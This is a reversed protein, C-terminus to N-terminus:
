KGGQTQPQLKEVMEEFDFLRDRSMWKTGPDVRVPPVDARLRAFSKETTWGVIRVERLDSRVEAFVVPINPKFKQDPKEIVNKLPVTWEVGKVEIGQGNVEIDYPNPSGNANIPMLRAPLGKDRLVRAVVVEALMARVGHEPTWRPSAKDKHKRGAHSADQARQRERAESVEEVTATVTLMGPEKDRIPIRINPKPWSRGEGKRFCVRCFWNEGVLAFLEDERQADNGCGACPTMPPLPVTAQTFADRKKQAAM